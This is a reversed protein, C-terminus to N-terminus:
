LKASENNEERELPITSCRFLGGMKAVESYAVKEVKLGWENELHNNLRNFRKESVVVSPSLSLVNSNLQAQEEKSIKFINDEGFVEVISYYNKKNLFADKCVIAKNNAIPMFACDLHLAGNLSNKDDKKLGLPIFQKNPFLEKLFNYGRMNTRATKIFDFDKKNYVGVFIIDNYLIVDGGEIFANPPLNYIKEFPIQQYIYKYAVKELLRNSIINPNIIFENIVFAIDRAFIQNCNRLCSPKYVKVGYKNLIDEFSDMEKRVDSEKPYNNNLVSEFSTADYTECLLPINGISPRGLVVSKLLSTENSIKLKM